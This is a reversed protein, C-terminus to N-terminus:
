SSSVCHASDWSASQTGSPTAAIEVSTATFVRFFRGIFTCFAGGRNAEDGRGLFSAGQAAVLQRVTRFAGSLTPQTARQPERLSRLLIIGPLVASQEHLGTLV